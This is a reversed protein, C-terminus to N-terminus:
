DFALLVDVKGIPELLQYGKPNHFRVAAVGDRFHIKPSVLIEKVHGDESLAKFPMVADALDLVQGNLHIQLKAAGSAECDHSFQLGQGAHQANIRCPKQKPLIYGSITIPIAMSASEKRKKQAPKAEQIDQHLAKQLAESVVEAARGATSATAQSMLVLFCFAGISFTRM